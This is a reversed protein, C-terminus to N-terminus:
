WSWDYEPACTPPNNKAITELEKEWKAILPDGTCDLDIAPVTGTYQITVTPNILRLRNLEDQVDAWSKLIPDFVITPSQSNGTARSRVPAGKVETETESCVSREPRLSETRAVNALRRSQPEALAAIGQQPRSRDAPQSRLYM